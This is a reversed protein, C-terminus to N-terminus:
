TMINIELKKTMLAIVANAFAALRVLVAPSKPEILAPWGNLIVQAPADPGTVRRNFLPGDVLRLVTDVM